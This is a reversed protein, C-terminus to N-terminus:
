LDETEEDRTHTSGHGPAMATKFPIILMYRVPSSFGISLYFGLICTLSSCWEMVANLLIRISM